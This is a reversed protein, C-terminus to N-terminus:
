TSVIVASVTFFTEDKSCRRLPTACDMLTEKNGSPTEFSEYRGGVARGNGEERRM